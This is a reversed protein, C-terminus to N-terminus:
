KAFEQPNPCTFITGDASWHILGTQIIDEDELMAYLKGVFAAQTKAPPNVLPQSTSLSFSPPPSPQKSPASSSLENLQNPYSSSKSSSVASSPEIDHYRSSTAALDSSHSQTHPINISERSGPELASTRTDQTQNLARDRDHSRERADRDFGGDLDTSEWTPPM